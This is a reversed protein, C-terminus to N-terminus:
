VIVLDISRLQEYLQLLKGATDNLNMEEGLSLRDRLLQVGKLLAQVRRALAQHLFCFIPLSSCEMVIEVVTIPGDVSFNAVEVQKTLMRVSSGDPATCQVVPTPQMTLAEMESNKSLLWRLVNSGNEATNGTGVDKLAFETLDSSLKISATFPGASIRDKCLGSFPHSVTENGKIDKSESCLASHLFIELADSTTPRRNMEISSGHHFCLCDLLDIVRTNLPLCIRDNESARPIVSPGPSLPKNNARRVTISSLNYYLFCQVSVPLPLFGDSESEVPVAVEMKERPPLENIPFAYTFATSDSGKTLALTQTILQVCLSWRNELPWDSLNELICSIVLSDQLLVRNWKATIHCSFAQKSPAMVKDQNSLLACCINFDQNLGRLAKDKEQMVGKLSTIRDSVNSIGSLLDKIRQGATAAQLKITPVPGLPRPMVCAMVKGKETLAVLNIDGEATPSPKSMAVVGCINLSVPNLISPLVRDSQDSREDSTRGFIESFNESRLFEVAFFDLCTSYYLTSAHCCASIVPGQLHYEVFRPSRTELQLSSKIIVVKGDKGIVVISNSFPSKVKSSQPDKDDIAEQELSLLGIFVVPQELHLLVTRRSTHGKAEQRTYKMPLFCVQGDPLGCLVVPSFLLTADVSFLLSFLSPELCPYNEGGKLKEIPPYICCLVPPCSLAPLKECHSAFEIEEIKQCMQVECGPRQMRFTKIKWKQEEETVLVINKDLGIFSCVTPDRVLCLEEGVTCVPPVCSGSVSGSQPLNQVATESDFSSKQNLLVLYVGGDECLVFLREGRRDVEVQWVTKPLRYVVELAGGDVYVYVFESRNCVCLRPPSGLRHVSGRAGREGGCRRVPQVQDWYCIAQARFGAM